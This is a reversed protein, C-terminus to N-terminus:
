PTGEAHDTWHEGPALLRMCSGAWLPRQEGECATAGSVLWNRFVIREPGAAPGDGDHDRFHFEVDAFSDFRLCVAVPVPGSRLREVLAPDTVEGVGTLWFTVPDTSYTMSLGTIRGAQADRYIIPTPTAPGLKWSAALERGDAATVGVPALWLAVPAPGGAPYGCRGLPHPEIGGTVRGDPGVDIGAPSVNSHPDPFWSGPPKM